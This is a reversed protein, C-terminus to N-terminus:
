REGYTLGAKMGNEDEDYHQEVFARLLEKHKEYDAAYGTMVFSFLCHDIYHDMRFSCCQQYLKMDVPPCEFLVSQRWM